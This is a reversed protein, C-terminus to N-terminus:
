RRQPRRNVVRVAKPSCGPLGHRLHSLCTATIRRERHQKTWLPRAISRYRGPLRPETDGVSLPFSLSRRVLLVQEDQCTLGRFITSVVPASSIAKYISWSLASRLTTLAKVAADRAQTSSSVNQICSELFECIRIIWGEQGCRFSANTNTDPNIQEVISAPTFIEVLARNLESGRLSSVTDERFFVDESLTELVSLVLEKHVLSAGWFQVLAADMDMWDLGWSKKAAEAWLQPIKNRLYAPDEPRVGEALQLIMTRLNLSEKPNTFSLHRLVHDLLTLGFYRVVPAHDARSALLFGNRAAADNDKLSEVFSLAEKRLENTSSPNHILELARIIDAM